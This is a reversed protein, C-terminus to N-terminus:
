FQCRKAKMVTGIVTDLLMVM